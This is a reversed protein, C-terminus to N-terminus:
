SARRQVALLALHRALLDDDVEPEPARQGRRRDGLDGALPALACAAELCEHREGLGVVRVDGVRLEELAHVRHARDAAEHEHVGLAVRQQLGDSARIRAAPRRSGSAWWSDRGGNTSSSATCRASKRAACASTRIWITCTELGPLASSTRRAFVARGARSSPSRGAGGAARGPRDRGARGTRGSRAPAARGAARRAATPSRARRSPPSGRRRGSRTCSRPSPARSPRCRRRAARSGPSAPSPAAPARRPRGGAPCAARRTRGSRTSWRPACPPGRGACPCAAARRRRRCRPRRGRRALPLDVRPALLERLVRPRREVAAPRAGPDHAREDAALRDEHVALDHRSGARAPEERAVVVVREAACAAGRHLPSARM